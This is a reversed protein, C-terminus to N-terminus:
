VIVDCAPKTRRASAARCAKRGRVRFTTKRMVLGKQSAEKRELTSAEKWRLWYMISVERDEFVYWVEGSDPHLVFQALKGRNM